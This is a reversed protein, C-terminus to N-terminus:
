WPIIEGTFDVFPLTEGRGKSEEIISDANAIVQCMGEISDEPTTPAQRGFSNGMDTAVWGPHLVMFKLGADM